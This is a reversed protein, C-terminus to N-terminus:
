DADSDIQHVVEFPGDVRRAERPAREGGSREDFYRSGCNPSPGLGQFANAKENNSSRGRTMLVVLKDLIPELAQAHCLLSVSLAIPIWAPRTHM